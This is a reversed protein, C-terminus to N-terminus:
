RVERDLYDEKTISELYDLRLKAWFTRSLIIQSEVMQIESRLRECELVDKLFSAEAEHMLKKLNKNM